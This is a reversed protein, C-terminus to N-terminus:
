SVRENVALGMEGEQEMQTRTTCKDMDATMGTECELIQMYINCNSNIANCVDYFYDNFVCVNSQRGIDNAEMSCNMLRRLVVLLNVVIHPRNYIIITRYRRSYGSSYFFVLLILISHLIILVKKLM